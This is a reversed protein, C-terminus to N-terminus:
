STTSPSAPTRPQRPAPASPRPRAPRPRRRGGRRNTERGCYEGQAPPGAPGGATQEARPWLAAGKVIERAGEARWRAMATSGCSPPRRRRASAACSRRRRRPCSPCCCCRRSASPRPWTSCCQTSGRPTPRIRPWRGRRRRPSSSTPRTSSSRVGRGRGRAARLADMAARYRALAAAAVQALRGGSGAAGAALGRYKEAM